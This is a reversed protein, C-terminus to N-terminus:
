EGGEMERLRAVMKERYRGVAVTLAGRMGARGPRTILYRYVVGAREHLCFMRPMVRSLLPLADEAPIVYRNVGIRRLKTSSLEEFRAVARRNNLAVAVRWSWRGTAGSQWLDFSGGTDMVGALWSDPDIQLPARWDGLRRTM